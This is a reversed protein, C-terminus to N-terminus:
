AYKIMFVRFILLIIKTSRIDRRLTYKKYGAGM